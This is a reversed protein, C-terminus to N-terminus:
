QQKRLRSYHAAAGGGTVAAEFLLGFPDAHLAAIADLRNQNGTSDTGYSDQFAGFMIIRSPTWQNSSVDYGLTSIDGGFNGGAGNVTNVDTADMVSGSLEHFAQNANSVGNNVYFATTMLDDQAVTKNALCLEATGSTLLRPRSGGSGGFTILGIGGSAPGALYNAASPTGQRMQWVMFITLPSSGSSINPRHTSPFAIGQQNAPIEFYPCSKGAFTVYGKTVNAHPAMNSQVDSTNESGGSAFAKYVTIVPTTPTDDASILFKLSDIITGSTKLTRAM